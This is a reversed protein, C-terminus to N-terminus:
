VLTPGTDKIAMEVVITAATLSVVIMCIVAFIIHIAIISKM